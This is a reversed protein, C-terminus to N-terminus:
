SPSPYVRPVRKGIGCMIEYPITENSVAVEDISIFEQGQKGFLVVEDGESVGPIDTVDILTMDMCITGVQPARTGHVLVEMRNSLRRSLGDAYGVPLTAILSDRRTSHRGGYSLPMGERIPNLQIIKSKWTMVQRFPSIGNEQILTEETSKLYRSPLSGYLVVGPRVLNFRSEPFRLIGASNAAHVLPITIGREKLKELAGNFRSLQRHTEKPDAEDACAFHTCIGEIYLNKLKLVEELLESFNEPAIGLRGMGTDIKIHIPVSKGAKGALSSISRALLKNSLVTSLNYTVLEEIENPFIGGLILIPATIGNRRLEIGEQIIGVGLYEAGSELAARACPLAGHGYADAKVVAMIKTHAGVLKRINGLNHRFAEIDIEAWTARRRNFSHAQSPDLPMM